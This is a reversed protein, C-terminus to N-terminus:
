RLTSWADLFQLYRSTKPTSSNRMLLERLTARMQSPLRGGSTQMEAIQFELLKTVDHTDITLLHHEHSGHNLQGSNATALSPHSKWEGLDSSRVSIPWEGASTETHLSKAHQQHAVFDTWLTMCDHFHLRVYELVCRRIYAGIPSAKSIWGDHKITLGLEREKLLVERDPSLVSPFWSIFSDLRDFSDLKWLREIFVDYVTQGPDTSTEIKSVSQLVSNFSEYEGDFHKQGENSTPLILKAILELTATFGSDSIARECYLQILLLTAIKSPTLFRAM